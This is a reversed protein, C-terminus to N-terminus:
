EEYPSALTQSTVSGELLAQLKPTKIFQLSVRNFRLSELRHSPFLPEL